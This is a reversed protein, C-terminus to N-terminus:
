IETKIESAVWEQSDENWDYNHDPKPGAPSEWFLDENLIWSDYPPKPQVFKNKEVNYIEGVYANNTSDTIKVYSGDLSSVQSDECIIVNEVINDKNIKAYHNIM